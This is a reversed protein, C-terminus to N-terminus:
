CAALWWCDREVGGIVTWLLSGILAVPTIAEGAAIALLLAFGVAAAGDNLLSETEVLM